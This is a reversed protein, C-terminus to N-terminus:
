KEFSYIPFQRPIQWINEDKEYPPLIKCDSTKEIRAGHDYFSNLEGVTLKRRDPLNIPVGHGAQDNVSCKIENNMEDGMDRSMENKVDNGDNEVDVCKQFFIEDSILEDVFTPTLFLFYTHFVCM